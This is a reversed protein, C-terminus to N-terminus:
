KRDYATQLLLNGTHADFVQAARQYYTPKFGQPGRVVFNGSYEVYCLLTGDLVRLDQAIRQLASARLAAMTLFEVREVHLVGEEIRIKGFGINKYRNAFIRVDEETFAATDPGLHNNNPRIAPSGTHPTTSTTDADDKSPPLPQVDPVATAQVIAKDSASVAAQSISAGFLGWGYGFVLVGAVAALGLTVLLYPRITRM